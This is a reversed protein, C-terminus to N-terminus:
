KFSQGSRAALLFVYSYLIVNFLFLSFLGLFVFASVHNCFCNTVIRALGPCHRLSCCCLWCCCCCFDLSVEQGSRGSSGCSDADKDVFGADAADQYHGALTGSFLESCSNQSELDHDGAPQLPFKQTNPLNKM